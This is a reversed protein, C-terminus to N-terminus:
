TPRPLSELYVCVRGQAESQGSGFEAGFYGSGTWRIYAQLVIAEGTPLVFRLLVAEGSRYSCMSEVGCGTASLNHIMGDMGIGDSLSVPIRVRWRASKRRTPFVYGHSSRMSDPDNMEETMRCTKGESKKADTRPLRYTYCCGVMSEARWPDVKNM